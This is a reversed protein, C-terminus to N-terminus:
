QVGRSRSRDFRTWDSLRDIGGSCISPDLEKFTLRGTGPSSVALIGKRFFAPRHLISPQLYQATTATSIDDGNLLEIIELQFQLPLRLSSGVTPDHVEGVLVIASGVEGSRLILDESIFIQCSGAINGGASNVCQVRRHVLFQVRCSFDIVNADNMAGSIQLVPQVTYQHQSRSDTRDVPILSHGGALKCCPFIETGDLLAVDNKLIM